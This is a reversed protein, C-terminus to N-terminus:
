QRPSTHLNRLFFKRGEYEIAVLSGNHLLKAALSCDAGANHLWFRLGDERIPHVSAMALLDKEPDGSCAFSSGEYGTLLDVREVSHSM